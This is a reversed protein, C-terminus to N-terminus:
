DLLVNEPKLDRYIVGHEHLCNIALLIEAAYFRARDESFKGERRLHTFLEGGNLFDMVYYLKTPTQFAYHLKVIFPHEITELIKREAKAKAEQQTLAIDEKKISKM